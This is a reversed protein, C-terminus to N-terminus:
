PARWDEAGSSASASGSGTPSGKLASAGGGKLRWLGSVLRFARSEKIWYLERAASAFERRLFLVDDVWPPEPSFAPPQWADHSGRREALVGLVDRLPRVVDDYEDRDRAQHRLQPDLRGAAADRTGAEAGVGLQELFGSMSETAKVPNALMANYEVVLTPLGALGVAASRLYRDWMALGLMVPISDRAQLSRAVELPDRLVLVAGLRAPVASRWLPLTLCFRPDKMVLPRGASTSTFWQAAERRADDFRPASEWGTEVPPPAYATAGRAALVHSNCQHVAESEWHGRENSKDAPVLDDERPGELGLGVLLGATASTGSRHMGVVAVGPALGERVGPTSV